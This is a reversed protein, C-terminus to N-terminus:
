PREDGVSCPCTSAILRVILKGWIWPAVSPSLLLGESGRCADEEEDEDDSAVAVADTGVAELERVALLESGCMSGGGVPAGIM